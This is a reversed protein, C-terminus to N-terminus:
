PLIEADLGAKIYRATIYAYRTPREPRAAESLVIWGHRSGKRQWHGLAERELGLPGVPKGFENAAEVSGSEQPDRSVGRSERCCGSRRGQRRGIGVRGPGRGDDVARLGAVPPANGLRKLLAQSRAAQAHADQAGALVRGPLERALAAQEDDHARVAIAVRRVVCARERVEQEPASCGLQRREFEGHEREAVRAIRLIALDAAPDVLAERLEAPSPDEVPDVTVHVILRGGRAPLRTDPFPDLPKRRLGTRGCADGHQPRHRAHGGPISLAGELRLQEGVLLDGPAVPHAVHAM